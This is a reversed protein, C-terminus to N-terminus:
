LIPTDSRCSLNCIMIFWTYSNLAVVSYKLHLYTYPDIGILVMKLPIFMWKGAIKINVLPVLNQCVAMDSTSDVGFRLDELDAEDLQGTAKKPIPRNLGWCRCIGFFPWAHGVPHPRGTINTPKYVMFYDGLQVSDEFGWGTHKARSTEMTPSGHRDSQTALHRHHWFLRPIQNTTQFM